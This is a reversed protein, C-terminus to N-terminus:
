TTEFTKPCYHGLYDSGTKPGPHAGDILSWISHHLESETLIVTYMHMYMPILLMLALISCLVMFCWVTFTSPYVIRQWEWCHWYMSIASVCAAHFYIYQLCVIPIATNRGAPQIEAESSSPPTEAGPIPGHSAPSPTSLETFVLCACFQLQQYLLFM